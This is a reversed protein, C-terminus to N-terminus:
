PKCEAEVDAGLDRLADGLASTPEFCEQAHAQLEADLRARKEPPTAELVAGFKAACQAGTLCTASSAAKAAQKRLEGIDIPRMPLAIQRELPAGAVVEGNEDLEFLTVRVTVSSPLLDRLGLESSDWSALEEGTEELTYSLEFALLDELVIQGDQVEIVKELAAPRPQERRVLSFGVDPNAVGAYTVMRPPTFAPAGPARAPALTVFRLADADGSVTPVDVGYFLYTQQAPDADEGQVVLLAGSLERELRDLLVQASRSRDFDGLRQEQARAISRYAQVATMVILATVAISIMMELLTFGARARGSM